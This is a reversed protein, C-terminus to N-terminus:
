RKLEMDKLPLSPQIQPLGAMRSCVVSAPSFQSRTGREALSGPLGMRTTARGPSWPRTSIVVSWTQGGHGAMCASMGQLRDCAGM